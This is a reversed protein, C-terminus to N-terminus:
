AAGRVRTTLDIIAEDLSMASGMKKRYALLYDLVKDDEVTAAVKAPAARRTTKKRRVTRGTEKAAKSATKTTKKKAAKKKSGGKPGPRKRPTGDAKYGWPADESAKTSAKKTTSKATKKKAAKKRPASGRKTAAKKKPASPKGGRIASLEKPSIKYESITAQWGNEELFSKIEKIEKKSRGSATNAKPAKKKPAKKRPM